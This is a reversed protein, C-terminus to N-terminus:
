PHAVAQRLTDGYPCTAGAPMHFRRLAERQEACAGNDHGALSQQVGAASMGFPNRKGLDYVGPCHLSAYLYLKCAPRLRHHDAGAPVIDKEADAQQVCPKYLLDPLSTVM